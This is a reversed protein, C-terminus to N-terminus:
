TKLKNQKRKSNCERNSNKQNREANRLRKRHKPDQELADREVSQKGKQLDLTKRNPKRKVKEYVICYSFRDRSASPNVSKYRRQILLSM